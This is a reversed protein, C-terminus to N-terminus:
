RPASQVNHKAPEFLTGELALRSFEDVSIEKGSDQISTRGEDVNIEFLRPADHGVTVRIAPKAEEFEFLIVRNVQPSLEHGLAQPQRYFFVRVTNPEPGQTQLRGLHSYEKNFSTACAVLADVVDRWLEVARSLKKDRLARREIWNQTDHM